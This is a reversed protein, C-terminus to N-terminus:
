RGIYVQLHIYVDSAKGAEDEAGDIIRGLQGVRRSEECDVPLVRGVGVLTLVVELEELVQAAREGGGAVEERRGEGRAFPRQLM